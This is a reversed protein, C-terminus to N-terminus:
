VSIKWTEDKLLIEWLFLVLCTLKRRTQFCLEDFFDEFVEILYYQLAEELKKRGKEERM